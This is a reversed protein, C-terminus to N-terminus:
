KKKIIQKLDIQKVIKEASRGIVYGGIGLELIDWMRAESEPPVDATIGFWRGVIVFGFTLMLIPRWTRQLFNGQAETKIIEGQLEVIKAEYDLMKSQITTLLEKLKYQIDMKEVSNDLKSIGDFIEGSLKSGAEGIFKGLINGVSM